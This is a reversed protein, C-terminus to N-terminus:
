EPLAQCPRGETVERRQNDSVSRGAEPEALVRAAQVLVKISTALNDLKALVADVGPAKPTKPEPLTLEHRFVIDSGTVIFSVCIYRDDTGSTLKRVFVTQGKRSAPHFTRDIWAPPEVNKTPYVDFLTGTELNIARGSDTKMGTVHRGQANDFLSFVSGASLTKYQNRM